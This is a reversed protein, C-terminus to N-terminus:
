VLFLERETMRNTNEGRRAKWPVVAGYRARKMRENKYNIKVVYFGIKDFLIM